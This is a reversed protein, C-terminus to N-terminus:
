WDLSGAMDGVVVKMKTGDSLVGTGVGYANGDGRMTIKIIVQGKAGNDCVFSFLHSVKNKKFDTEFKGNTSIGDCNYSGDTAHIKANAPNGHVLALAGEFEGMLIRFDNPSKEVKITVDPKTAGASLVFAM